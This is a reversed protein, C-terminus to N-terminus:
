TGCFTRYPRADGAPPSTFEPRALTYDYPAALAAMLRELARLDGQERGGDAGRGGQSQPSDRRSQQRQMLAHGRRRDAASPGAAGAVTTGSRMPRRRRRRPRRRRGPTSSGRFTNTFDARREHMWTLLADLLAADDPEETFLGLKARMGALWHHEFRAAFREISANALEIARAQDADFLPLMAEALRALNWQAIAPQNGYAYRGAADISSFVTAPDYADMFACPGYDITEGALAMNDTNMVGHIFGSSSGSRSAARGPAGVVADFLALYPQPADASIRITGACRTTPSRACRKPIVIAAAWEFTGVRLHSAAVRTLVAGPLAQERFVAEGTAVVALSRSTPIGLAHMAESIIYERLM